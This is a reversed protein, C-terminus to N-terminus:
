SHGQQVTLTALFHWADVGGGCGDGGDRRRGGVESDGVGGIGKSGEGEGEKVEAV